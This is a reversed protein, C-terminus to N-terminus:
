EDPNIHVIVDYIEDRKTLEGRIKGAIKHSERVTMDPDVSVKVVLMHLAGTPKSKISDVHRVNEMAEIQKKIEETKSIDICRDILVQYSEAIIKVGTVAIVCSIISGVVGDVFYIGFYGFVVGIVVGLSILVDNKHDEANATILLSNEKKGIKKVYIYMFLKVLITVCPVIVLLVSFSFYEKYIISKISKYLMDVSMAVMLIGILFSAVFEAKGHGFEHDNDEPVSSIKGGAYTLLSSMVDGLSNVADAILAQSKFSVGALFKMILLGFNATMGLIGVKKIVNTNDKSNSNM